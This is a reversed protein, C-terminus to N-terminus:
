RHNTPLTPNRCVVQNSSGGIVLSMIFRRVSTSFVEVGIQQALPFVVIRTGILSVLSRMATEAAAIRREDLCTRRVIAHSRRRRMPRVPVHSPRVKLRHLANGQPVGPLHSACSASPKRGYRERQVGARACVSSVTAPSAPPLPRRHSLNSGTGNPQLFKPMGTDNRHCISLHNILIDKYHMSLAAVLRGQQPRRTPRIAM